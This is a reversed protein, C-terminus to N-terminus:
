FLGEKKLADREKIRKIVNDYVAKYSTDKLDRGSVPREKLFADGKLYGNKKYDQLMQKATGSGANFSVLSFFDRAQPSLKVNNNKTYEDMEDFDLKLRAAKALMADDTNKFLASNKTIGEKVPVFPIYRSKFDAPLYGKKILEDARDLFQDNGFSGSGSIPFEGHPDVGPVGYRATGEKDKFLGSMGEVMSSAYLLAPDIGTLKSANISINKATGSGRIPVENVRLPIDGYGEEIGYKKAWTRAYQLRSEPNQYDPRPIAGAPAPTGETSWVGTVGAKGQAGEPAAVGPPSGPYPNFKSNYYGEIDTGYKDMRPYYLKGINSTDANIYNPSLGQRIYGLEKAGLNGFKEGKRIQYAEYQIAPIQEQTISFAPNTKKYQGLLTAQAKPDTLDANQKGAYDLFANWQNRQDVTTPVYGKPPAPTGGGGGGTDPAEDAYYTRIHIM